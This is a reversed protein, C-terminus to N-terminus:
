TSSVGACGGGPRLLRESEYGQHALLEKRIATHHLKIVVDMVASSLTEWLVTSDQPLLFCSAFHSAAICRLPCASAAFDTSVGDLLKTTCGSPHGATLPAFLAGSHTHSSCACQTLQAPMAAPHLVLWAFVTILLTTDPGHSPPKIRGTLFARRQKLRQQYLVVVFVILGLLCIGGAASGAIAGITSSQL